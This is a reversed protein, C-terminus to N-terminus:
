ADYDGSNKEPVVVRTTDSYDALYLFWHHSASPGLIYATGDFLTNLYKVEQEWVQHTSHQKQPFLYNKRSFMVFEVQLGCEFAFELLKPVCHLLTTTGCTKIMIKFPYVFLSSESLVYADFYENSSHSIITCKAYNLMEQWQPATIARLGLLSESSAKFDIELRKEPGEFGTNAVPNEGVAEASSESDSNSFSNSVHYEGFSTNM